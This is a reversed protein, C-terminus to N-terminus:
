MLIFTYCLSNSPPFLDIGNCRRHRRMPTASCITNVNLELTCPSLIAIPVPFQRAFPNIWCAFSRILSRALSRALSSDGNSLANERLFEHSVRQSITPIMLADASERATPRFFRRTVVRVGRKWILVPFRLEHVVVVSDYLAPRRLRNCAVLDSPIRISRKKDGLSVIRGSVTVSIELVRAIGSRRDVRVCTAHQQSFM